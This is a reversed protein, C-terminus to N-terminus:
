CIAVKNETLERVPIQVKGLLSPQNALSDSPDKQRERGLAPIASRYGVGPTNQPEQGDFEPVCHKHPLCKISQTMEGAPM